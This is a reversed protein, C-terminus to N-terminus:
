KKHIMFRSLNKLNVIIRKTQNITHFRIWYMTVPIIHCFVLFITLISIRLCINLVETNIIFVLTGGITLPLVVILFWILNVEKDEDTPPVSGPEYHRYVIGIWSLVCGIIVLIYGIIATGKTIKNINTDFWHMLVELPDDQKIVLDEIKKRSSKDSVNPQTQHMYWAREHLESDFTNEDPDSIEIMEIISVIDRNDIVEVDEHYSYSFDM